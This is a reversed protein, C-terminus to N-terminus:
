EADEPAAEGAQPGPMAPAASLSDALSMPPERNEGPVPDTAAGTEQGLPEGTLPSVMAPMAFGEDNANPARAVRIPAPANDGLPSGLGRLQRENELYQAAEPAEFGFDVANWNALQQQNARTEFETELVMVEHKLDIIQREALAVESKVGTVTMALLAFATLCISLAVAWGVQRLRSGMIMRGGM